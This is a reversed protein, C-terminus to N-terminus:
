PMKLWFDELSKIQKGDEIQKWRKRLEEQFLSQYGRSLVHTQIFERDKYTTNCYSLLSTEARATDYIGAEKFTWVTYAVNIKLFHFHQRQIQDKTLIGFPHTEVELTQLLPNEIVALNVTQWLEDVLRIHQLKNISQSSRHVFIAIWVTVLVALFTSAAAIVDSINGFSTDIIGMSLGGPQSKLGESARPSDAGERTGIIRIGPVV